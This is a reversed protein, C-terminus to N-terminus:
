TTGEIAKDVASRIRDKLGSADDKRQIYALLGADVTPDGGQTLPVLDGRIIYGTRGDPLRTIRWNQGDRTFEGVTRIITGAPLRTVIAAGRDPTLRVPADDGAAGRDSPKWDEGKAAYGTWDMDLEETGHGGILAWPILKGPCAKYDQFDRHGLLGIKPYRSRLDAVLAQLGIVQADSPGNVAYGEIEVSLCAANPNSWWSGMVAKGVTAGYVAEDDTTRLDNPNISGSAHDESLMQVIRGSYEIVFHVSVGRAPDRSLYGVTGGGEAMHVVFALAPGARPGYDYRAHVFPYSM